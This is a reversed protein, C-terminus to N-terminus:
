NLSHSVIQCRSRASSMARPLRPAPKMSRAGLCEMVFVGRVRNDALYDLVGIHYKEQPPTLERFRSQFWRATPPHFSNPLVAALPSDIQPRNM